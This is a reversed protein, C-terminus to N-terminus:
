RLWSSGAQHAPQRWSPMGALLGKLRESTSDFATSSSSHLRCPSGLSVTLTSLPSITVRPMLRGRIMSGCCCHVRHTGLLRPQNSPRLSEPLLAHAHLMRATLRVSLKKRFAAPMNTFSTRAHM